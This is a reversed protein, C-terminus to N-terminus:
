KKEYFVEKIVLYVLFIILLIDLYFLCNFLIQGFTSFDIFWWIWSSRKYFILPNLNAYLFFMGFSIEALILFICILLIKFSRKDLKIYYFEMGYILYDLSVNYKSVIADLLDLSVGGNGNEVKSIVQRSINLSEAFTVQTLNNKVRIDKIRKGIEEENIM